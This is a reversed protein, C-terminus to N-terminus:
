AAANPSSESAKKTDTSAPEVVEGEVIPSDGAPAPSTAGANSASGAETGSAAGPASQSGASESAQAENENEGALVTDAGHEAVIKRAVDEAYGRSMVHKVAREIPDTIPTPEAKVEKAAADALLARMKAGLESNADNALQEGLKQAQDLNQLVHLPTHYEVILEAVGAVTVGRARLERIADAKQLQSNFEM